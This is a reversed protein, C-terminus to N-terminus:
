ASMKPYNLAKCEQYLRKELISFLYTLCPVMATDTTGTEGM